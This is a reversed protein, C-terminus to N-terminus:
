TVPFRLLQHSFPEEFGDLHEIGTKVLSSSLWEWENRLGKRLTVAPEYGLLRGAKSIDAATHRADGKMPSIFRREVPFGVIEDIVDIVEVLSVRHGGGINIVEGVVGDAAAAILMASIVDAVYTFDRTQRGDGFIPIAEKRLAARFFLNFGMDPRQRPGYVSFLRLAVVPIGFNAAYLLAMREAALKTVGYPSVPQPPSTESTPLDEADGYISSTSALVFRRLEGGAAMTRRASELLRHTLTINRTVYSNFDDWSARVGAQAALHYIVGVNRVLEDLEDDSMANIDREMLSFAPHAAVGAINRRKIAPDYYPNFDDVGAVTGGEAVLADCLHSGIFGAAGTVLIKGGHSTM